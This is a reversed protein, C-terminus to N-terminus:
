ITVLRSYDSGYFDQCLSRCASFREMFAPDQKWADRASTDHWQAFSVFHGEDTGERILTASVLAPHSSRTWQLFETWREVFEREKGPIVHRNGSAYHNPGSGVAEPRITETVEDSRM